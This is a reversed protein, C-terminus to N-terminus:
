AAARGRSAETRVGETPGSLLVRWGASRTWAATVQGPTVLLFRHTVKLSDSVADLDLRQAALEGVRRHHAVPGPHRRQERRVAHQPHGVDGDLQDAPLLDLGPALPQVNGGTDRQAEPLMDRCAGPPGTLPLRSANSNPIRPTRPPAPRGAPYPATILIRECRRFKTTPCRAAPGPLSYPAKLRVRMERRLGIRHHSWAPMTSETMPMLLNERVTRVRQRGMNRTVPPSRRTLPMSSGLVMANTLPISTRPSAAGSARARTPNSDGVVAM